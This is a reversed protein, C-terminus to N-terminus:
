LSFHLFDSVFVNGFDILQNSAFFLFDHGNSPRGGYRDRTSKISLCRIMVASAKNATKNGARKASVGWAKKTKDMRSM